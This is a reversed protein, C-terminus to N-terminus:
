TAQAILQAPLSIRRHAQRCSRSRASRMSLGTQGILNCINQVNAIIDFVIFFVVKNFVLMYQPSTGGPLINKLAHM